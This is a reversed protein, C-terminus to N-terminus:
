RGTLSRFTAPHDIRPERHRHERHLGVLDHAKSHSFKAGTPTGSPLFGVKHDTLFHRRAELCRGCHDASRAWQGDDIAVACKYACVDLAQFTRASLM